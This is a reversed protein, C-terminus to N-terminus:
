YYLQINYLWYKGLVGGHPKQNERWLLWSVAYKQHSMLEVKLEKPDKCLVNSGPCSKLSNHLGSLVDLTMAQQTRYTNLALIYCFLKLLINKSFKINIFIDGKDGMAQIDINAAAKKTFANNINLSIASPPSLKKQELHNFLMIVFIINNYINCIYLAVSFKNKKKLCIVTQTVYKMLM